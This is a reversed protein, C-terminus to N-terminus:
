ITFTNTMPTDICLVVCMELREESTRMRSYIWVQKFREIEERHLEFDILPRHDADTEKLGANAKAVKLNYSDFIPYELLLGLSPMKPITVCRLSYLQSPLQPSTLVPNHTLSHM